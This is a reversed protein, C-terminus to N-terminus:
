YPLFSYELEYDPHLSSWWVAINPKFKQPSLSTLSGFKNRKLWDSNEKLFSPIPFARSTCKLTLLTNKEEWEGKGGGGGIRGKAKRKGIM